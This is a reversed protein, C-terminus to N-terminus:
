KFKWGMRKIVIKQKLNKQTISKKKRTKDNPM